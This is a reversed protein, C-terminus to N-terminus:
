PARDRPPRRGLASAPRSGGAAGAAAADHTPDCRSVVFFESDNSLIRCDWTSITKFGADGRDRLRRSAARLKGVFGGNRGREMLVYFARGRNMDRLYPEFQADEKNIPRIENNSYFTEGRWTILWSIIDEQCVRKPRADVFDAIFGLGARRVLPTYAEEIEVPQPMLTCDGYYAEFNYRQSWSPTLRPLYVNLAWFAFLGACLALGVRLVPLGRRWLGALVLAIAAGGVWPVFTAFRLWGVQLLAATTAGVHRAFDTEAWRLKPLPDSRWVLVESWDFPLNQPLPRDYKYTFMKRLSQPDLAIALLVAAAVGAALMLQLRRARGSLHDLQQLYLSVLLGLAPAAPLIYHHFKTSSITFVAFAVAFWAFVFGAVADERRLSPAVAGARQARVAVALLAMPVLATWPFLGYALWEIFHEFTGHDIQHVGSGVRNFHDHIFFRDYYARGHRCFMAVYWPLATVLFLPLGRALEVRGLLRWQGSFLLWVFLIAGPLMFGLLGKAYTAQALMMYFCLLLLQRLWRDKAADTWGGARRARWMPWLLSGLVALAPPVYFLLHWVGNQQVRAALAAAGSLGAGANPDVLDTAIIALQPGVNAAFFGVFLAVRRGFAADSLREPRGFVAAIFFALGTTMTGVFPMDTQAQRSVMYVFPSLGVVVAAWLAHRRSLSREIALYLASVATAGILAMPLRFAWDSFGILRLFTAESWFIWIPKSYFWGGAVPETGIKERYGWWPNVWDYTELMTRSVEGYHTEWPDWLGFSGCNWVYLLYIAAVTAWRWLRDRATPAFAEIEAPDALIPLLSRKAPDNVRVEDRAALPAISVM